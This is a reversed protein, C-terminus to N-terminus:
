ESESVTPNISPALENFVPCIYNYSNLQTQNYNPSDQRQLKQPGCWYRLGIWTECPTHFTRELFEHVEVTDVIALRGHVGKYERTAAQKDAMAWTFARYINERRAWILAFYSKSGPDYIPTDYLTGHRDPVGPTPREYTCARAPPAVALGLLLAVLCCRWKAM